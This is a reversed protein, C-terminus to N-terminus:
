RAPPAIMVRGILVGGTKPDRREASECVFRLHTMRPNKLQYIVAWAAGSSGKSRKKIEDGYAEQEIVKWNLGDSSEQVQFDFEGRNSWREAHVTLIGQRDVDQSLQVSAMRNKGGTLHLYKRGEDRTDNIQVGENLKWSGIESSWQMEGNKASLFDAIVTKEPQGKRGEFGGQGATKDKGQTLLLAGIAVGGILFLTVWYGWLPFARKAQQTVVPKEPPVAGKVTRGKFGPNKNREHTDSKNQGDQRLQSDYAQKQALNTLCLLAAAVQNLLRQAEVVHEGSSVDQLFQTRMDGAARIVEVDPEFDTLGLLQYHNPPTEQESLGLWNRYPDFSKSM